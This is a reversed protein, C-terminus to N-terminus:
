SVALWWKPGLKRIECRAKKRNKPFCAATAKSRYKMRHKKWRWVEPERHARIHCASINTDYWHECGQLAKYAYYLIVKKKIQPLPVHWVPIPSTDFRYVPFNPGFHHSATEWFECFARTKAIKQTFDQSVALGWKPGLKRIECRAKKGVKRSVRQQTQPDISTKKM